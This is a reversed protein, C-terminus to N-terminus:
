MIYGDTPLGFVSWLVLKAYDTSIGALESIYGDAPLVFVSLLVITIVDYNLFFIYIYIEDNCYVFAFKSCWRLTGDTAASM